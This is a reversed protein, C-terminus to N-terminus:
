TFEVTLVIMKQTNIKAQRTSNHCTKWFDPPM